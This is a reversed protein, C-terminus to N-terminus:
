LLRPLFAPVRRAYDDFKPGFTERLLKEETRIRITTGILFVVLGALFLQWRSVALGAAILIGLMALYIPNRVIVYPGTSILKHGEIVRAVLAWQKGLARAAAYCFWVSATVIGVIAVTLIAEWKQSMQSYFSFHARQFSFCIAFGLAQLAFGVRWLSDHKASGKSSARRGIVFVFFLSAIGAFVSLVAIAALPDSHFSLRFAHDNM